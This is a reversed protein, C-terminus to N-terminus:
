SCARFSEAMRRQFSSWWTFGPAHTTRMGDAQEEHFVPRNSKGELTLRVPAGVPPTQSAQSSVQARRREIECGGGEGNRSANPPQASPESRNRPRSRSSDPGTTQSGGAGSARCSAPRSAAAMKLATDSCSPKSRDASALASIGVDSAGDSGPEAAAVAFDREALEGGLKAQRTGVADGLLGAAHVSAQSGPGPGKTLVNRGGAGSQANHEPHRM